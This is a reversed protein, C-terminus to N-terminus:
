ITNFIPDLSIGLGRNIAYAFLNNQFHMFMSGALAKKIGIKPAKIEVFSGFVLGGGIVAIARNSMACNNAQTHALAFILTSLAVRGVRATTNSVVWKAAKPSIPGLLAAPGQKLLFEQIFGRFFIEEVIPATVTLQCFFQLEKSLDQTLTNVPLSLKNCINALENAVDMFKKPLHQALCFGGNTLAVSALSSFRAIGLAKQLTQTTQAEEYCKNYFNSSINPIQVIFENRNKNIHM